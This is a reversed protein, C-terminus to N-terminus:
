YVVPAPANSTFVEAGPTAAPVDDTEPEEDRPIAVRARVPEYASTEYPVAPAFALDTEALRNLDEQLIAMAVVWAWGTFLGLGAIAGVAVSRDLHKEGRVEMEEHVIKANRYGAWIGWLGVTVVALLVDVAPRLEERDTEERLERTTRYLWWYAYVGFTLLTLAVVTLPSRQTM